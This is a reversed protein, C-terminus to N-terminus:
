GAPDRARPKGPFGWTAYPTTLAGGLSHGAMVVRGGHRKAANVVRRLDGLEVRLGWRKAFAVKSDPILRFHPSISSNRIWGLYYDYLRGPSARGRKAKEAVSQDELLNERREVSWVQWGKVRRVLTRAFPAIYASGASTGPIFVLVNRARRPGIKLIGVKDYRAPTGPARVGKIWTVHDAAAAPSAAGTGLAAASLAAVPLARLRWSRAM